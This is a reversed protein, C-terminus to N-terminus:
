GVTGGKARSTPHASAFRLGDVLHNIALKLKLKEIVFDNAIIKRIHRKPADPVYYAIDRSLFRDRDKIRDQIESSSLETLDLTSGSPPKPFKVIKGM